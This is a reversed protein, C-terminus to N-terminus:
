PGELRFGELWEAARTALASLREAGWARPGLPIESRLRRPERQIRVFHALVVAKRFLEVKTRAPWELLAQALRAMSQLEETAHIVATDLLRIAGQADGRELLEEARLTRAVLSALPSRAHLGGEGLAAHVVELLADLECGEEDNAVGAEFSKRAGALDGTHLLALGRLHHWHRGAAFGAKREPRGLLEAVRRWEGREAKEEAARLRAIPHDSQRLIAERASRWWDVAGEGVMLAGELDSLAVPDDAYTALYNEVWAAKDPQSQFASYLALRQAKRERGSPECEFFPPAFAPLRVRVERPDRPVPPPELSLPFLSLGTGLPALLVARGRGQVLIADRPVRVRFTQKWGAEEEVFAVLEPRDGAYYMAYVRRPDEAACLTHQTEFHSGALPMPPGAPRGDSLTLLGLPEEGGEEEAFGSVLALVHRGSRHVAAGHARLSGLSGLGIPSIAGRVDYLQAGEEFDFGIVQPADTGLLTQAGLLDRLQRVLRWRETEVVLTGPQGGTHRDSTILWLHKSGPVLLAHEVKAGGLHEDLAQWEVVGLSPWRLVLVGGSEDIIWVSSGEVAIEVADLPVPARVAGLRRLRGTDLDIDRVFVWRDDVSVLVLAGDDTIWRPTEEALIGLDAAVEVLATPGAAEDLAVQTVRWEARVREALNQARRGWSERARPDVEELRLATNRARVLDGAAALREVEAALGRVEEEHRLRAALAELRAREEPLLAGADVAALAARADPSPGATSVYQARELAQLANTRAHARLEARAAALREAAAPVLALLAEHPHLVALAEEPGLSEARVLALVADVARRPRAAGALRELTELLDGQSQSRVEARSPAELDLYAPLAKALDGAALGGVVESVQRRRREERLQRELAAIREAASENGLERAEKWAGLARELEGRAEAELARRQREESERQRQAEALRRQIRHAVESEPWRALLDAALASARAADGGDFAAQLEEEAPRRARARAAEVEAALSLIEAGGPGRRRAEELHLTAEDLAGDRLASSVLALSAAQARPGELGRLRRAARARDGSRADALALLARVEPHATADASLRAELALADGDAGLTEVLLECLPLAIAAGGSGCLARELTERAGEYDYEEIQRRARGLLSGSPDAAAAVAPLERAGRRLPIGAPAGAPAALGLDLELRVWARADEDLSDVVVHCADLGTFRHRLVIEGQADHEVRLEDPYARVLLSQLRAKLAYRSAAVHPRLERGTPNVAHIAELLRQPSLPRRRALLDEALEEPTPERGRHSKM